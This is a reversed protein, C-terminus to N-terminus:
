EYSLVPLNRAERLLREFALRRARALAQPPMRAALGALEADAEAQLASAAHADLTAQAASLLISDLENLREVIRARSDGRAHRARAALEDLNQTVMAVAQDFSPGGPSGAPALLRSLSRQIHAALSGKRPTAAGWEGAQEGTESVATATAGIARRWDDFADLVDPECFEIRMPRRRGGRAAARECCRDIGRFAVKLPVGEVAWGRVKEFAPGVVRVLHGGNKKCLYSEVARCYDVPDDM